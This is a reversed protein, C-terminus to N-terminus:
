STLSSPARPGTGAARATQATPKYSPQRRLAAARPAHRWVPARLLRYLRPTSFLSTTPLSSPRRACRAPRTSLGARANSSTTQSGLDSVGGDRPRPTARVPRSGREQVPTDLTVAAFAAKVEAPTRNFSDILRDIYQTAPGAPRPERESGVSPTQAARSRATPRRASTSCPGRPCAAEGSLEPCDELWGPMPEPHEALGVITLESQLYGYQWAQTRTVRSGAVPDAIEDLVAAFHLALEGTCGDTESSAALLFFVVALLKTDFRSRRGAPTRDDMGPIRHM